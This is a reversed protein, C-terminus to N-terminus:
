FFDITKIQNNNATLTLLYPIKPIVNSVSTLKNKNLNIFRLNQYSALEYGLDEVEKGELDLNVFAFSSGDYTKEIQSLHKAIQDEKLINPVKVPVGYDVEPEEPQPAGEGEAESM